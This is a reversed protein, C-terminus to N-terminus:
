RRPSADPQALHLQLETLTARRLATPVRALGALTAVDHPHHAGRTIGQGRTGRTGSISLAGALGCTREKGRVRLGAAHQAHSRVRHLVHPMGGHLPTPTDCPEIAVILRRVHGTCSDAACLPRTAHPPLALPSAHRHGASARLPTRARNAGRRVLQRDMIRSDPHLSHQPPPLPPHLGRVRLLLRVRVAQQVHAEDEEVYELM